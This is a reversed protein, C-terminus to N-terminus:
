AGYIKGEKDNKREVERVKRKIIDTAQYKGYKEVFYDILKSLVKEDFQLEENEKPAEKM